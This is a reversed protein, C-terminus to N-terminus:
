QRKELNLVLFLVLALGAFSWWQIAYSFNRAPEVGTRLEGGLRLMPAAVPRGLARALDERTPFSTVRPWPGDAPPPVRGAAIGPVPLTDLQGELQLTAEAQAPPLSVDPLRDRYGSFPVWGRDVILTTGDALLLPTLIEYGPRGAQTVNDLLFQRVGDYRGAVRIHSHPPLADLRDGTVDQPAARAAREIAAWDQERHLGRGWQWFGLSTFLACGALTLLLFPGRIRLRRTGLNLTFPM